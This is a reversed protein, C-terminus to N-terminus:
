LFLRLDRRHQRGQATDRIILLRGRGLALERSLGLGQALPM